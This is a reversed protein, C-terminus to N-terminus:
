TFIIHPVIVERENAVITTAETTIRFVGLVHATDYIKSLPLDEGIGLSLNGFATTISNRIDIISYGSLIEVGLTITLSLTTAKTVIISDCLPRVSEDNCASYIATTFDTESLYVIEVVGAEPNLIEVQKIATSVSKAHYSYSEKAGATSHATLSLICRTKLAEDTETDLRTVGYGYAINDLDRGTATYLYSARLSANIRARLLMERYLFAEIVLMVSDSELFDNSIDLNAYLSEITERKLEEYEIEEIIDPLEM